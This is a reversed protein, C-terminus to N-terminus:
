TSLSQPSQSNAWQQALRAPVFGYRFAVENQADEDLTATYLFVLVNIAIIAVTVFPTRTTPQDDHFPFM